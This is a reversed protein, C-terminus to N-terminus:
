IGRPGEGLYQKEGEGHLLDKTLWARRRRLAGKGARKEATAVCSGAPGGFLGPERKVSPVLWTVAVRRASHWGRRGFRSCVTGVAAAM